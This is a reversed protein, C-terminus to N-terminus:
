GGRGGGRGAAPALLVGGGGVGLGVALVVGFAALFVAADFDGDLFALGCVRGSGPVLHTMFSFFVRQSFAAHIASSASTSSAPPPGGPERTEVACAWGGAAAGGGQPPIHLPRPTMRWFSISSGM